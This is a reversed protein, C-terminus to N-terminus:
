LVPRFATPHVDRLIGDATASLGLLGPSGPSYTWAEISSVLGKKERVAQYLRSSRGHGLLAAVVDLVPVDPHRLQPIHWAFHFHGIEIPAEEIVERPATQQPEEPLM